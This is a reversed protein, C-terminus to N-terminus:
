PQVEKFSIDGKKQFQLLAHIQSDYENYGMKRYKAVTNKYFFEMVHNNSNYLFIKGDHCCILCVQYSNRLASNFDNISPPMSSPHSHIVLLNEYKMISKKTAKSYRIKREKIQNTELAIVKGTDIDIWYMDEFMTGSRHHLIKKAIRYVKRNLEKDSSIKDFKKRYTGSNIYTHNIHTNKNRGYRQKERLKTSEVEKRIILKM